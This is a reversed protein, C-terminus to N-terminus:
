LYFKIMGRNSHGTEARYFARNADEYTIASVGIDVKTIKGVKALYAALLVDIM